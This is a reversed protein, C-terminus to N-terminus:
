AIAEEVESNNQSKISGIKQDQGARDHEDLVHMRKDQKM